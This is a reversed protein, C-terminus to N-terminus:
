YFPLDDTEFDLKSKAEFNDNFDFNDDAAEETISEQHTDSKPTLMEFTHIVVVTKYVKRGERDEYSEKHIEGELGIKHGKKVYQALTDAQKEWARCDIFETTNGDARRKNVAVTFECVSKGSQTKKIEIDKTTNGILIVKNM